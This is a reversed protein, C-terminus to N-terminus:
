SQILTNLQQMLAAVEGADQRAEAQSIRAELKKTEQKKWLSKLRHAVQGFTVAAEKDSIASFAEDGKLLLGPIRSALVEPLVEGLSTADVSAGSTYRLKVAEYLPAYSSSAFLAELAIFPEELPIGRTLVFAWFEDALLQLQSPPAQTREVPAAVSKPAAIPKQDAVIRGMDDRLVDASVGLQGSLKQLWHDQEVAFPIRSIEPLLINAIAQKHKPNAIDKGAFARHFYWDMVLVAGDVAQQWAEPNNKVMDDPDTGDPVEIIKVDMGAERALDIGRKAAKYGAEDADFAIALNNTYRKLLAIQHETLATGSTAVINHMGSQWVGIVDMQGEVMVALDSKRITQKAKDLGFVVRSKDYLLSQPTNVYKGGSKETEVLVRGTFGVTTGHVDHIPFMIRGRFRDYHGRSSGARAGQKQITLGATVLDDISHGKKLLYKTLLDWQDPVFGIQWVEITEAMLGREELYTRASQSADMKLLFQHYFRAADQMVDKLRNKQSSQVNDRKMTLEVGAKNALFKLAEIFEMGEIEQVFTFIDGGKSCGFCHWSQRDRSAMFSPSKENHFPCLGKHNIGAPKLQVYESIFDVIDLKQKILQTDSM